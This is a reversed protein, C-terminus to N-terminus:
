AFIGHDAHFDLRILELAIGTAVVRRRTFKLSVFYQKDPPSSLIFITHMDKYDACQQKKEEQVCGCM